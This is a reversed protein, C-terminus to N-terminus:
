RSFVPFIDSIETYKEEKKVAVPRIRDAGLLAYGSAMALDFKTTSTIDFQLWDNLLDAYDVNQSCDNIYEMTHDVISQHTKPTAPIGPEKRDPLHLMFDTCNLGDFYQRIGQKQDEFLMQCGFFWCIKLMDDYFISPKRPRYCYILVFKDSKLPNIPDFKAFLAGAGASKRSDVTTVHDFPDVGLVFRAKNAPRPRSGFYRVQNWKDSKWDVDNSMLFNGNKSPTFKVGKSIDGPVIWSLTGRTHKDPVMSLIDLRDTIKQVDYHCNSSSPRFADEVKLPYRRKYANYSEMDGKKAELENLIFRTNKEVDVKGYKDPMISDAASRFHRYLGTVTRNNSNRQTQDSDDWFKKYVDMKGEINDVTSTHLAKGIIKGTIPDVLCERHADWRKYVDVESTKFVEDVLYRQLKFGDYANLDSSKYDITSELEEELEDLLAQKGKKSTRYFRIESKPTTGISQDWVPVFFDPLKKFSSVLKNFINKADPGTKSQIGAYSHHSRSTYEYIFETGKYTKGDRRGAVEIWGFCDPDEVCYQRFYYNWRDSDRYMPLGVDINWFNLYFFHPGTVYTPEGNNMFWMGNMRKFWFEKRVEECDEFFFEPDDRDLRIKKEEKSRKKYWDPLDLPEWYQESKKSSRSYVGVNMWEQSFHDWVWGKQPINILLGQYEVQEGGPQSRYM